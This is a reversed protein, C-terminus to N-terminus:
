VHSLQIEKSDPFRRIEKCLTLIFFDTLFHLGSCFFGNLFCDILM